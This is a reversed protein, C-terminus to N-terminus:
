RWPFTSRSLPPLPPWPRKPTVTWAPGNAITLRRNCGNGLDRQQMEVLDATADIDDTTPQAPDGPRTQVTSPGIPQGPTHFFLALGVLLGVSLAVSMATSVAWSLLNGRLKRRFAGATPLGLPRVSRVAARLRADLAHSFEPRARQAERWMPEALPDYDEFPRRKDM